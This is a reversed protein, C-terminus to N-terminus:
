KKLQKLVRDILLKGIMWFRYLGPKPDKWSWYAYSRCIPLSRIWELKGIERSALKDQFSWLDLLLDVWYKRELQPRTEIGSLDDAILNQYALHPLNLGCSQLHSISTFPRANFDILYFIGTNKDELWEIGFIGHNDIPM